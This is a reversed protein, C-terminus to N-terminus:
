ISEQHVVYKDAVKAAGGERLELQLAHKYSSGHINHLRPHKAM